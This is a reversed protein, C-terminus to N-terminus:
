LRICPRPRRRSGPGPASRGGSRGEPGGPLRSPRLPMAFISRAACAFSLATAGADRMRGLSVDFEGLIDQYAASGGVVFPGALSEAALEANLDTLREEVGTVADRYLLTGGEVIFSDVRIADDGGGSGPLPAGAAPDSAQDASPDTSRFDWNRRGDPLVELVVRPEVLTVTEVLVQQKLLPFLAVKIRLEELQIMQASSSGEVNALSVEAASFAPTPLLQLSVDGAIVLDRGTLRRVEEAIRGKEANWDWFSPLILLGATLLVLIAVVSLALKKVM